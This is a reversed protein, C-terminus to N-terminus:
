SIYFVYMMLFILIQELRWYFSFSTPTAEERHLLCYLLWLPVGSMLMLVLRHFTNHLLINMNNDGAIDVCLCTLSPLNLFIVVYCHFFLQSFVRRLSYSWASWHVTFLLVWWPVQLVVSRSTLSFAPYQTILILCAPPVIFESTVKSIFLL